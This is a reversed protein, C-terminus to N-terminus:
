GWREVSGVGTGPRGAARSVRRVAASALPTVRPWPPLWSYTTADPWGCSSRRSLRTREPVDPLGGTGPGTLSRAVLKRHWALITEPRVITAIEAM